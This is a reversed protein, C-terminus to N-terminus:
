IIQYALGGSVVLIVPIYPTLSIHPTGAYQCTHLINSDDLDELGNLKQDMQSERRVAM